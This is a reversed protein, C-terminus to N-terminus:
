RALSRFRSYFNQMQPTVLLKSGASPRFFQYPIGLKRYICPFYPFFRSFFFALNGIKLSIKKELQLSFTMLRASFGEARSSSMLLLEVITAGTYGTAKNKEEFCWHLKTDSYIHTFDSDICCGRNLFNGRGKGKQLCIHVKIFNVTHLEM